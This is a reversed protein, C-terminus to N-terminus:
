LWFRCHTKRDMRYRPHRVPITAMVGAWAERRSVSAQGLWHMRSCVRRSRLWQAIVRGERGAGFTGTSFFSCLTILNNNEKQKTADVYKTRIGRTEPQPRVVSHPSGFTLIRYDLLRFNAFLPYQTVCVGSPYACIKIVWNRFTQLTNHQSPSPSPSDSDCGTPSSSFLYFLTPM